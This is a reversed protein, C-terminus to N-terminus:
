RKLWSSHLTLVLIELTDCHDKLLDRCANLTSGTTLVDDVLVLNSHYSFNPNLKLHHKISLRDNRNGKTQKVDEKTFPYLIPLNLPKLMEDLAHFGREQTKELSSPVGVVTKGKLKRRLFRIYPTLFVPALTFDHAEKIQFMWRSATQNYAYLSYVSMGDVDISRNLVELKSRCEGCVIDEYSLLDALSKGQTLPGFCVLCSQRKSHTSRM